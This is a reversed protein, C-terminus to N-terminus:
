RRVPPNCFGSRSTGAMRADLHQMRRLPTAVPLPAAVEPVEGTLFDIEKRMATAKGSQCNQFGTLTEWCRKGDGNKYRPVVITGMPYNGKTDAPTYARSGRQRVRLSVKQAM